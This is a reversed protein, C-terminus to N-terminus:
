KEQGFHKLFLEECLKEGETTFKVSKAKRAPDYILGAAHLRNLTDWNYGKWSRLGTVDHFTTLFMLALTM